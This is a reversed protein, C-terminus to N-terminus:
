GFSYSTAYPRFTDADGDSTYGPVNLLDLYRQSPPFVSQGALLKDRFTALMASEDFMDQMVPRSAILDLIRKPDVTFALGDADVNLRQARQEAFCKRQKQSSQM